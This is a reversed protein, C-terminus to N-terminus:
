KDLQRIMCLEKLITGNKLKISNPREAIIHFGMKQYLAMARHNGEVVELELQEVGWAKAQAIMEEFMATGIGLRWFSKILAIAVDARHRTRMKDHRKLNCNGAIRGDVECLITLIDPSQVANEIYDREQQLTMTCEEPERLLFPTEAATIKLYELLAGADEIEPSRFIAAAGNKLKIEKAQYYIAYEGERRTRKVGHHPNEGITEFFKM